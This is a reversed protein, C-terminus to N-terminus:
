SGTELNREPENLVQVRTEDAMLYKWMLLQRHFYDYVVHLYSETCYIIWNAFTARNLPVGLQKELWEGASKITFWEPEYGM